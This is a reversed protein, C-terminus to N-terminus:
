LSPRCRTDMSGWPIWPSGLYGLFGLTDMSDWPIWPIGLYGHFGLTDMPDWSNWPIGLYGLFGLTALLYTTYGPMILQIFYLGCLILSLTGCVGLLLPPKVCPGGGQVVAYASGRSLKDVAAMLNALSASVMTFYRRTRLYDLYPMGTGLVTRAGGIGGRGTPPNTSYLHDLSRAFALAISRACSRALLRDPSKLDGM